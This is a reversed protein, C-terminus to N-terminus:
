AIGSAFKTGPTWGTEKILDNLSPTKDPVASGHKRPPGTSASRRAEMAERIPNIFYKWTQARINPARGRIVPLVDRELDAGNDLLEQIPGTVFLGPAPENQWGAAERLKSELSSLQDRPATVVRSQIQETDTDTDPPTVDSHSDSHCATVDPTVDPTKDRQKDRARQSRKREAANEATDSKFQREDWNHPKLDDGVEDLLGRSVLEKISLACADDDLRLSFAIDEVSPLLGDNRGALCLINVWVKFLPPPLKQVKPDDLVDTYMRFWRSM